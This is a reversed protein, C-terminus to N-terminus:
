RLSKSILYADCKLYQIMRVMKKAPDQAEIWGGSPPSTSMLGGVKIWSRDVGLSCNCYRGSTIVRSNSSHISSFSAAWSTTMEGGVWLGGLTTLFPFVTST